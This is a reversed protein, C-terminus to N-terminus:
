RMIKFGTGGNTKKRSGYGEGETYQSGRGDAVRLSLQVARECGFKKGRERRPSGPWILKLEAPRWRGGQVRQIATRSRIM